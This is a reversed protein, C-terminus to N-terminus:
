RQGKKKCRPDETTQKAMQLSSRVAGTGVNKGRMLNALNQSRDNVNNAVHLRFYLVIGYHPVAYASILSVEALFGSSNITRDRKRRSYNFIYSQIGRRSDPIKCKYNRDEM